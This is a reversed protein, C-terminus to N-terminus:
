LGGIVGGSLLLVGRRGEDMVFRVDVLIGM